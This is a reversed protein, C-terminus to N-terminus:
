PNVSRSVRDFLRVPLLRSAYWGIWTELGIPVVSRDRGILDVIARGVAEPPRGWRSFFREARRIVRPSAREGRFRSHRVIATDTVGPFAVSVRVGRRRWDAGLCRSLALVGAKTTVYAPETARTTFALGSAVNVVRGRSERLAPLAASTVRWPGIMNVDIVALAAEDPPAGASQPQGVGANNIMVDLGGLREIAQSVAADVAAQDRVDCAIVDDGDPNVDLGVVRAGRARLAACAASGIGGSAGTVIVRATM